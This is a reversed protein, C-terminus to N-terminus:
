ERMRVQRTECENNLPRRLSRQGRTRGGFSPSIKGQRKRLLSQPEERLHSRALGVVDGVSPPQLARKIAFGQPSRQVPDEGPVLRQAGGENNAFALRHLADRRHFFTWKVKHFM